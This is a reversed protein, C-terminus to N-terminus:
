TVNCSALLFKYFKFENDDLESVPIHKKLMARGFKPIEFAVGDEMDTYKTVFAAIMDKTDDNFMYGNVGNLIAEHLKKHVYAIKRMQENVDNSYGHQIMNGISNAMVDIAISAQIPINSDMFSDWEEDQKREDNDHCVMTHTVCKHFDFQAGKETASIDLDMESVVVFKRKLM